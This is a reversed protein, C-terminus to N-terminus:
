KCFAGRPGVIAESLVIASIYKRPTERHCLGEGRYCLIYRKLGPAPLIFRCLQGEFEVIVNQLFHDQTPAHHRNAALGIIQDPDIIGNNGAVMRPNEPFVIMVNKFVVLAKVGGVKVIAPNRPRRKVIPIDDYNALVPNFKVATRSLAVHRRRGRALIASRDPLSMHFFGRRWWQFRGHHQIAAAAPAAGTRRAPMASTGAQSGMATFSLCIPLTVMTAPRVSRRSYTRELLSVEIPLDFIALM